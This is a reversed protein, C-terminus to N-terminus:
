LWLASKTIKSIFFMLPHVALTMELKLYKTPTYKYINNTKKIQVKKLL